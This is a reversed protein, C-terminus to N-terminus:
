TYHLVRAQRFIFDEVDEVLDMRSPLELILSTGNPLNLKLWIRKRVHFTECPTELLNRVDESEDDKLRSLLEIAVEPTSEQLLGESELCTPRRERGVYM